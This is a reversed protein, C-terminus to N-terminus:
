LFSTNDLLCIKGHKVINVIRGQIYQTVKAVNFVNKMKFKKTSTLNTIYSNVIQTLGNVGKACLKMHKHNTAFVNQFAKTFLLFHLNSPNEEKEMISENSKVWEWVIVGKSAGPFCAKQFCQPFLFFQESRAIEGKGVTNEERKSLM